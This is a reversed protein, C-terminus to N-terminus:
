HALGLVFIKEHQIDESVIDIAGVLTSGTTIVDDIIWLHTYKKRNILLKIIPDITFMQKQRGERDIKSLRKQESLSLPILCDLVHINANHINLDAVKRKIQKAIDLMHDCNKERRYYNRSPIPIIGVHVKKKDEPINNTITCLLIDTAWSIAEEDSKKIDFIRKQISEDKYPFLFLLHPAGRKSALPSIHSTKNIHKFM